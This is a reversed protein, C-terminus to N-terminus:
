SIDTEEVYFPYFLDDFGGLELWKQKDAAFAGAGVNFAYKGRSSEEIRCSKQAPVYILGFYFEGRTWQAAPIPTGSAVQDIQDFDLTRVRVGFINKEQFHEPLYSLFDSKVKVDNNLLVILDYSSHSIGWNCAYGYGRNERFSLVKVGPFKDKLFEEVDRITIFKYYHGKYNTGVHVWWKNM